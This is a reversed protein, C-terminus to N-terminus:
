FGIGIGGGRRGIGISISGGVPASGSSGEESARSRGSSPQQRRAPEATRPKKAKSAKAVCKGNVETEGRDCELPCVREKRTTVAELAVATPEEAPMALKARRAFNALAEKAKGGWKGDIKGPDCGVRKLETQLARALVQPDTVPPAKVEPPTPLAAIKAPEQAKAAPEQAKAPPEPTKVRPAPINAAPEKLEAVMIRALGAFTGNPYRELYAELMAPSKSEKVSNWFAIELEPDYGGTAKPPAVTVDPPVTPVPAVQAPAVAGPDPTPAKNLYLQGRLSTHEWPM